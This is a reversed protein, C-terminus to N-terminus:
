DRNIINIKDQNPRFYCKQSSCDIHPAAYIVIETDDGTNTEIKCTLEKYEGLFREKVINGCFCNPEHESIKFEEPRISLLVEGMSAPLNQNSQMIGLPTELGQESVKAKILNTKGFFDAVYTNAPFNYLNPPTDTQLAKGKRIVSVKDAMAMVDKTDHTVFVATAGTEQIINQIHDRMQHKRMSDINSFPEDFLIINPEPAMARALAVRQKQGGSLQHPYREELGQLGTLELIGRAKVSAQHRTLKFLGFTINEWVTKHPFLAYDQFVIGVLRNQPEIFVGQGAVVQGNILITGQTPTEFGAIMRLLTTKGCGSEGLLGVIEGKEITLDFGKVAWEQSGAFKKGTNKLELISM